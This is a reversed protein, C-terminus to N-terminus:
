CLVDSTTKHLLAKNTRGYKIKVERMQVVIFTNYVITAFDISVRLTFLYSLLINSDIQHCM